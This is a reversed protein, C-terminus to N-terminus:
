RLTVRYRDYSENFRFLGVYIPSKKVDVCFWACFFLPCAAGERRDVNIRRCYGHNGYHGLCPILLFLVGALVYSLKGELAMNELKKEM